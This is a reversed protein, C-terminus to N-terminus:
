GRRHSRICDVGIYTLCDGLLVHTSIFSTSSSCVSLDEDGVRKRSASVAALLEVSRAARSDDNRQEAHPLRLPLASAPLFRRAHVTQDIDRTQLDIEVPGRPSMWKM